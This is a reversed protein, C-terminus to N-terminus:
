TYKVTHTDVLPTRETVKLWKNNKKVHYVGIFISVLVFLSIIVIGAIAGGTLYIGQPPLPHQTKLIGPRTIAMPVILADYDSSGHIVLQSLIHGVIPIFKFGWGSTFIVINKNNKVFPPAFDLVFGGDSVMSALCTGPEIISDSWNVNKMHNKVFAVTSTFLTPDQRNSRESPHHIPHSVFDPAVRVYGPREWNNEPFGYFLDNNDKGFYFWTTLRSDNLVKFYYSPMEWIDINIQFGLSQTLDNIFAGPALILKKTEFYNSKFKLCISDQESHIIEELTSNEIMTVNLHRLLKLYADVTAEVNVYGSQSHYLGSWDNKENAFGFRSDISEGNIEECNQQLSECTKYITKFDGETTKGTDTAGFFLYGSQYLAKLGSKEELERWFPESLTALKALYEESYMERFQRTKGASSGNQNRFTFREVIAVKKDMRAAAYAAALGVPGGGIVVVDFTDVSVQISARLASEVAGEIWAHLRTTHEGAFVVRNEPKVLAPLLNSEQSPTFLAFAGGTYRDTHWRKVVGKLFYPTLDKRHIRSLINLAYRICNEDFDSWSRAAEGWTYSALVVGGKETTNICPYYIFRLPLDTVSHGGRIGDDEWFRDSFFIYIKTAADYHLCRLAEQKELSLPPIFEIFNSKPASTTVLVNDCTKSKRTEENLIYIVEVNENSQNIKVVSANLIIDNGLVSLFANPLKDFGDVIGYYEIENNIEMVDRLSEIFSTEFLGEENLVVGIMKIAGESLGTRKLYRRVSLDGYKEVVFDWGKTLKEKLVPCIARTFLQIATAGRENGKTDFGLSNPDKDAKSTKELVNNVHYFTNEDNQTFKFLPLKFKRLFTNVLKHTDPVRMAGLEAIWGSSPDKFTEIRGGIRTNAELLTM